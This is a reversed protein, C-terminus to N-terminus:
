AGSAPAPLLGGASDTYVVEDLPYREGPDALSQFWARYSPKEAM